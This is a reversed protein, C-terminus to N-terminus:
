TASLWLGCTCIASRDAPSSSLHCSTSANLCNWTKWRGPFNFSIDCVRFIASPRWQFYIDMREEAIIILWQIFFIVWWINKLRWFQGKQPLWFFINRSKWGGPFNIVCWFRSHNYQFSKSFSFLCARRDGSNFLFLRQVNKDSSEFSIINRFTMFLFWSKGVELFNLKIVYWFCSYDSKQTISFSFQCVKRDNHDVISCFHDKSYKNESDNFNWKSENNVCKLFYDGTSLSCSPM